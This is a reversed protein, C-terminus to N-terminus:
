ESVVWLARGDMALKEHQTCLSGLVLPPRGRVLEVRLVAARTCRHGAATYADCQRDIMLTPDHETLTSQRLPM